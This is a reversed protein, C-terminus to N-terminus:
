GTAGHRSLDRSAPLRCGPCAEQCTRGLSRRDSTWVAPSRTSASRRWFCCAGAYLFSQPGTTLRTVSGSGTGIVSSAYGLVSTTWGLGTVGGFQSLTERDLPVHRDGVDVPFSNEFDM